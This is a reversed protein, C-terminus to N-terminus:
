RRRRTTGVALVGALVVLSVQLAWRPPVLLGAALACACALLVWGFMARGALDAAAAAPAAPGQRLRLGDDVAGPDGGGATAPTSVSASRPWGRTAAAAGV